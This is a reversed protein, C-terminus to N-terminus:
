APKTPLRVRRVVAPQLVQTLVKIGRVRQEVRKVMARTGRLVRTVIRAPRGAVGVREVRARAVRMAEAQDDKHTDVFLRLIGFAQEPSLDKSGWPRQRLLRIKRTHRERRLDDFFENLVSNPLRLDALILAHNTLRSFEPVAQPHGGLELVYFLSPHEVRLSYPGARGTDDPDHPNVPGVGELDWRTELRRLDAIAAELRAPERGRKRRLVKLADAVDQHGRRKVVADWERRYDPVFKLAELWARSETLLLTRTSVESGV